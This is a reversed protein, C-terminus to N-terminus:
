PALTVLVTFSIDTDKAYASVPLDASLAWSVGQLALQYNRLSERTSATGSIGLTRSNKSALPAYTFGSLIIGPRPVALMDRIVASVQRTSALANLTATENSLITLQTSLADDGHSPTSELSALRADKARASETLFVYTPILLVAAAAIFVILFVVITVGLRLFYNRRLAHQREPPLLNTREDNM